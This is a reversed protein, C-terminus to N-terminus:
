EDDNWEPPNDNDVIENNEDYLWVPYCSYDLLLRIRKLM